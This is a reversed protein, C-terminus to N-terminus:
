YAYGYIRSLIQESIPKPVEEYSSFEMAYTARGQSLSRVDTAYGFMEALPVHARVAQMGGAQSEMGEIKGRRGNLDGIIDGLHSEPTVVEVSMIPELLFSKTGDLAKRVAMSAAIQFSLPTSDVEHFEADLLAVQVNIVPYGALIGSELADRVGQEIAATFERSIKGHPIRNVIRLGSGKEGPEIELWVHGFQGRAGTQKQFLGEGGAGGRISEKYAVQPKGVNAQVGFERLLRDIIIELHLEGMGSVITQGTEEDTRLRFTPDEDLVRGLAEGMKDQDAKTKPEIAVSIVPEPFVIRELLLPHKEDCLTDGTTVDKLGVAAALDGAGVEQIDERHNAHMRLLRGIREKRGTRPNYVHSGAKVKGSYVRLFILKGVYSDAMIKFALASFPEKEDPRRKEAAGSDPNEGEVPPVDLPSPLYDVVADLLAQVGKNRLSTGCLVPVLSGETVAKRLGRKLEEESLERNELYRSLLEEDTEAVSEVLRNRMRSVLEKMEPPVEGSVVPSDGEANGFFVAKGGVLDVLGSFGDEAGIPVQIPVARTALREEMKNLVAFYDAGIRDMKNVYALRPVRYKEAQRWVTETQPQVGGVACLIMVLGDLVRMSREVEVTFDVHGPTDIINIRCDRWKCSTVASTITIGREQEQIMWDMVATGDDVEGMRHIRGAYFLIRETTTTKGADIHAALGINRTKELSFSETM